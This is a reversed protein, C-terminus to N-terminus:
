ISSVLPSKSFRAVGWNMKILKYLPIFTVISNSVFEVLSKSTNFVMNVLFFISISSLSLGIDSKKSLDFRQLLIFEARRLWISVM